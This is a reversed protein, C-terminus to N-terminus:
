GCIEVIYDRLLFLVLLCSNIYIYRVRIYIIAGKGQVQM